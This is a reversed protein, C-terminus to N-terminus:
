SPGGRGPMIAGPDSGTLPRSALKLILRGTLRAARQAAGAILGRAPGRHRGLDAPRGPHFAAAARDASIVVSGFLSIARGLLRAPAADLAVVAGRKDVSRALGIIDGARVWSYAAGSDGKQRYRRDSPPGSVSIVRHVVVGAPARFVIIQGRKFPKERGLGAIVFDGEEILPVMSSGLVPVRLLRVPDKEPTKEARISRRAMGNGDAAM